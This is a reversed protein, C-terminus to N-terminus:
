RTQALLSVLQEYTPEVAGPESRIVVASPRQSVVALLEDYMRNLMSPGGNNTVFERSQQDWQSRNERRGFREVSEERDGLLIFEVFTAGSDVAVQEFRRIQDLRALYQPLVVDRGGRLHAAAMALADARAVELTRNDPDQWGGILTNLADIDLNLTGPHRDAYLAAITSKGIGPPGNLHILRTV